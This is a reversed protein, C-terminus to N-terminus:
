HSELWAPGKLQWGSPEARDSRLLGSVFSSACWRVTNQTRKRVLTGVRHVASGWSSENSPCVLESPIGVPYSLARPGTGLCSGIGIPLLPSQNGGQAGLFPADSLSVQPSPFLLYQSLRQTITYAHNSVIPLSLSSWLGRVVLRLPDLVQPDM